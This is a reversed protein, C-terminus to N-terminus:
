QCYMVGNTKAPPADQLYKCAISLYQRLEEIDALFLSMSVIDFIWSSLKSITKSRFQINGDYMWKAGCKHKHTYTSNKLPFM